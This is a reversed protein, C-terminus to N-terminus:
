LTVEQFATTSRSLVVKSCNDSVYYMRECDPSQVKLNMTVIDGKNHIIKMTWNQDNQKIQLM